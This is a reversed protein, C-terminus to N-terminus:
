EVRIDLHPKHPVKVNFDHGNSKITEFLSITVFLLETCIMRIKEAGEGTVTEKKQQLFYLIFTTNTEEVIKCGIM